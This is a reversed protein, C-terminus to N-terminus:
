VDLQKIKLMRQFYEVVAKKLDEEKEVLFVTFQDFDILCEFQKWGSSSDLFDSVVCPWMTEIEKVLEYYKAEVDINKQLIKKLDDIFDQNIHDIFFNCRDAITTGMKDTKDLKRLEM